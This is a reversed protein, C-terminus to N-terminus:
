LYDDFWRVADGADDPLRSDGQPLQFNEGHKGGAVKVLRHKVGAGALAAQMRESQELPVVVDDEGHFMLTPADDATVFNIPSAKRYAVNEFEDGRVSGPRRTAPDLYEFGMLATLAGPRQTQGFLSPLDSPAFLVAVAKVKASHRNVPDADTADGAATMTGLLHALHGGSSSGWAGIRAPDIGYDGAHHRVFRVARQADEIQAPFHFRPTSRHSIAFVTYGEQAFRQAHAVVETRSRITEADYGLSTYWGSGQIAIIAAGNSKVPRYVDMLLALGSYMGYVVNKEVRPPAAGFSATAFATLMACVMVVRM